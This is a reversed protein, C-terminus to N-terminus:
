SLYVNVKKKEITVSVHEQITTSLEMGIYDASIPFDKHNRDVLVAVQIRKAKARIFPTLAYVLTRGTNLVDDVVIVNRDAIKTNGNSLKVTNGTPNVKDLTINILEIKINSIAELETYLLQAIYTGRGDIGAIVINKENFHNEYIQYAIRKIIQKAELDTLIQVKSNSMNLKNQGLNLQVGTIEIRKTL